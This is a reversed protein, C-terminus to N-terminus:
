LNALDLNNEMRGFDLLQKIDMKGFLFVLGMKKIMLIFDLINEKLGFLNVLDRKEKIKGNVLIFEIMQFIIYEMDTLLIITGNDKMDQAM